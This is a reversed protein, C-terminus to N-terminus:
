DRALEKRVCSSIFDKGDDDPRLRDCLVQSRGVGLWHGDILYWWRRRTLSPARSSSGQPQSASGYETISWCWEIDLPWPLLRTVEGSFKMSIHRREVVSSDKV